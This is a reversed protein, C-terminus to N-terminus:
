KKFNTNIHFNFLSHSPISHCYNPINLCQTTNPHSPQSYNKKKKELLKEKSHQQM